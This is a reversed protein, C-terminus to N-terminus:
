EPTVVVARALTSGDSVKTLPAILAVFGPLCTLKETVPALPWHIISAPQDGSLFHQYTSSLSSFPVVVAGTCTGPVHYPTCASDDGVPHLEAGPFTGGERPAPTDGFPGATVPPQPLLKQPRGAHSFSATRWLFSVPLIRHGRRNVSAPAKEKTRESSSTAQVM